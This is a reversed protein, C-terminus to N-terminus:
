LSDELCEVAKKEKLEQSFNDENWDFLIKLAERIYDAFAVKIYGETEVLYNAFTDKGSGKNGCLGIIQM